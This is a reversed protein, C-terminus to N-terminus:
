LPTISFNESVLSQTYNANTLTGLGIAYDGVDEGVVRTLSGTATLTTSSTASLSYTLTPDDDGYTKSLADPTVTVALPTVRFNEPALSLTYNTNSLTGLAIAYDGVDDGM